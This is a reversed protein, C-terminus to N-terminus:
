AVFREIADRDVAIAVTQRQDVEGKTLERWGRKLFSGERGTEVARRVLSGLDIRVGARKASIRYTRGSLRVRVSRRAPAGIEQELRALADTTTLHGVPVGGIVVGRPVRDAAAKDAQALIGIGAGVLVLLAVVPVLWRVRKSRTPARRERRTPRQVRSEM